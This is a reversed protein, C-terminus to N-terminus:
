EVKLNAKELEEQKEWELTTGIYEMDGEQNVGAEALGAKCHDCGIPNNM